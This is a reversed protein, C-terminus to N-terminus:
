GLNLHFSENLLLIVMVVSKKEKLILKGVRELAMQNGTRTGTELIKKM